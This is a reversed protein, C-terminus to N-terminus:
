HEEIRGLHLAGPDHEGWSAAAGMDDKSLSPLYDAGSQQNM